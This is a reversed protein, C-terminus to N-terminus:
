LNGRKEQEKEISEFLAKFNGKGFSRGGKREIVEYFFTPRDGMPKTFIQLMYGYEDADVLINLEKLKEIDEDINGVREKLTDYYSAPTSLFEVGNAKLQSVTKIIDSTHLAMHQVGPTKYYDLYEQIQSKKLGLAPENIPFIISRDNYHVVKSRLASYKTSIDKDDFSVLQEFGLGRIYYNVWDDMKRDEVNGVIHDVNALGTSESKLDVPEFGAPLDDSSDSFDRLTHVTEGYSPIVSTKVKGSHTEETGISGPKIIGRKRIESAARDIDPVEISIDRVGDGHLKIHEAIPSSPDLFSTFLIKIDGQQMLYSVKDRVGTEPGAYAVQRFGMAKEHYYAWQRASGVYFEVSNVRTLYPEDEM